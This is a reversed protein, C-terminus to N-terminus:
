LPKMELYRPPQHLTALYSCRCDVGCCYRFIFVIFWCGISRMNVSETVQKKISTCYGQMQLSSKAPAETAFVRSLTVYRYSLPLNDYRQFMRVVLRFTSFLRRMRCMEQNHLSRWWTVAMALVGQPFIGLHINLLLHCLLITHKQESSPKLIARSLGYM